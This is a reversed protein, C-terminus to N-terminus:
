GREVYALLEEYRHLVVEIAQGPDYSGNTDVADHYVRYLPGGAGDSTRVYYWDGSGNLCSGVPVYGDKAVALGPWFNTAEDFSQEQTLFALDVGLESRDHEEPIEVTAGVLNNSSIFNVWFEPFM